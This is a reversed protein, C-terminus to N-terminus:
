RRGKQGSKRQPRAKAVANQKGKSKGPRTVISKQKEKGALSKEVFIEERTFPDLGTYYMVASYTSPLPTFIQVQEPNIKLNGSVFTKLDRMEAEGCGPHAAILYYTLYQKKGAARTYRFFLDHFEQLLRKGPKGMRALVRDETHEPAIKMQGSVHHRVVEELYKTGHLADGLVLDYRIGSSVFVKKVGKINRLRRLLGIQRSHDIKLQPCLKPYLCRKHVCSGKELKLRCEYGYMNATPGGVDQVYGKFDKEHTLQVAEKLISDESRWRVTRGEHVAISCFNCEGYCGRHTPLSFKFTTLAKVEGQQEYFPHVKREYPLDYVRDLEAQNLYPAPPNQVLYRADQKQYLGKGKLPDNNRYFLHFMDIFANKDQVVTEYSPLEVFHSPLERSSYCIGRLDIIDRSEKLRAALEIITKEAMGYVLIDAKANFLISKRIKDSWYDYHAIRRLSAEIGGLVVPRTNKFYRRILNTYVIAARDPRRNNLGGPTYDDSKRKRGTATYNAVMSDISGGSVGWFLAPEGLRTIDLASDTDPQGIIGVRYGADMLVRGVVSIGMYPSDIYADGTVLIVDPRDWGLQKMEDKTTPLFM